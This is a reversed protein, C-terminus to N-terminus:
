EDYMKLLDETYSGDDGYVVLPKVVKTGKGGNKVAKLLFLNSDKDKSPHIFRIEKVALRYKELTEIVESLRPTRHILFMRGKTKLCKSSVEAIDEFTCLIEHRAASLNSNESMEGSDARYYPPNVTLVDFSNYLNRDLNKLDGNIIKVNGISNYELSKKFLECMDANVEVATIEKPDAKAKLLIPVIGNGACLDIVSDKKRTGKAAFSSLLVADIGFCFSDTDQYIFYGKTQLDDLRINM